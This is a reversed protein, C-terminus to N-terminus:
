GPLRQPAAGGIHVHRDRDAHKEGEAHAEILRHMVLGVGIEVGGHRQEEEEQDAAREVMHHALPRALGHLPQHPERRTNGQREAGIALQPIRWDGLDLGAHRKQDRGALTKRDVGDDDLANGVDVAREDGALAHRDRGRGAGRKLGSRQVERAREGDLRCGCGRVGEEGLHHPHHLRGFGAAGGIAADGIAGRAEIRRNDV